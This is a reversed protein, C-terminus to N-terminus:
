WGRLTPCGITQDPRWDIAVDGTKEPWLHIMNRVWGASCDFISDQVVIEHDEFAQRIEGGFGILDGNGGNPGVALTSDRILLTGGNFADVLRSYPREGGALRSNSIVTRRAGSKLVHGGDGPDRVISRRVIFEAAKAVYLVHGHNRGFDHTSEFFSDEIVLRHGMGLLGMDARRCTMNRIVVEGGAWRICAANLGITLDEVVVNEIVAGPRAILAAKDSCVRTALISGNFDVPRDVRACQLYVGREVVGQAIQDALASCEWGAIEDSCTFGRAELDARGAPIREPGAVSAPDIQPVPRARVPQRPPPTRTEGSPTARDPSGSKGFIDYRSPLGPGDLRARMRDIARQWNARDQPGAAQMAAELRAIEARIAAKDDAAGALMAITMAILFILFRM